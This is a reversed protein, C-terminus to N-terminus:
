SILMVTMIDILPEQLRVPECQSARRGFSYLCAQNLRACNSCVPREAPCRTKKRRDFTICKNSLVCCGYLLHHGGATWVPRMHACGGMRPIERCLIYIGATPSELNLDAWQSLPSWHLTRQYWHESLMGPTKERPYLDHQGSCTQPWGGLTDWVALKPAIHM